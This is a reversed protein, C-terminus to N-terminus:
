PQDSPGPHAATAGCVMGNAPDFSSVAETHGTAPDLTVFQLHATNFAYITDNVNMVTLNGVDNPTIPAIKTAAGTGPDIQYLAAPIVAVESGNSFDFQATDFTAYLKGRFSFLTEDYLNLKGNSPDISGPAATIPPIGTPGILKAAGTAPDVSYFNQSFDLAYYSNNLRGLTVASNPGCPSAPTSCDGLGTAGVLSAEGKRPDIAYLNGSFAMSLFSTGPQPVLAHGLDQPLGSGIPLFDGSGLDVAGFGAAGTQPDNTVVYVLLSRSAAPTDHGASAASDSVKRGGSRDITSYGRRPSQALALAALLSGAAISIVIRKM